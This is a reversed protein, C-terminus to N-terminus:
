ATEMPITYHSHSHNPSSAVTLSAMLFHHIAAANSVGMRALVASIRDEGVAEYFGSSTLPWQETACDVPLLVADSASVTAHLRTRLRDKVRAEITELTFRWQTTASDYWWFVILRGKLRRYPSPQWAPVIVKSNNM